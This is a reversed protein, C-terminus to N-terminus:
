KNVKPSSTGRLLHLDDVSQCLSLGQLVAEKYGFGFGPVTALARLSSEKPM